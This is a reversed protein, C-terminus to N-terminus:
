DRGRLDRPFARTRPHPRVFASNDLLLEVSVPMGLGAQRVHEAASIDVPLDRARVRDALRRRLAADGDVLESLEVSEPGIEASNMSQAHDPRM